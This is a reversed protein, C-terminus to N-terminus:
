DDECYSRHKLVRGMRCIPGSANHKQTTWGDMQTHMSGNTPCLCEQSAQHQSRQLRATHTNSSPLHTLPLHTQNVGCVETVECVWSVPLCCWRTGADLGQCDGDEQWATTQLVLFGRGMRYAGHQQRFYLLTFLANMHHWITKHWINIPDCLKVQWGCM